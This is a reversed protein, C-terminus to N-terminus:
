GCMSVLTSESPPYLLLPSADRDRHLM